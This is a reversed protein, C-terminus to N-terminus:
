RLQQSETGRTETGLLNEVVPSDANASGSSLRDSSEYGSETRQITWHDARPVATGGGRLVADRRSEQSSRSETEPRTEDEYITMLGRPGRESLAREQRRNCRPSGHVQQQQKRLELESLVRDVNLVERVPRWSPKPKGGPGGVTNMHPASIDTRDPRPMRQTRHDSHSRPGNESPCSSGPYTVDISFRPFTETPLITRDM